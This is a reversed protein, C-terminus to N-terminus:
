KKDEKGFRQEKGDRGDVFGVCYCPYYEKEIAHSQQDLNEMAYECSMSEDTHSAIQGYEYGRAYVGANVRESCDRKCGNFAIITTAIMILFSTKKM